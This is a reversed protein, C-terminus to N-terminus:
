QRLAKKIKYKIHLNEQMVLQKRRLLSIINNVARMYDLEINFKVFICIYANGHKDLIVFFFM